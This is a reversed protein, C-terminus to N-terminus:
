TESFDSWFEPYKVHLGIHLKLLIEGFEEYFSFHKLYFSYVFVLCV